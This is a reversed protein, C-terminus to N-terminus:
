PEIIYIGFPNSIGNFRLNGKEDVKFTIQWPTLADGKEIDTEQYQFSIIDKEDFIGKYGYELIYLAREYEDFTSGKSISDLKVKDLVIKCKITLTDIEISPTFISDNTIEQSLGTLSYSLSLVVIVINFFKM